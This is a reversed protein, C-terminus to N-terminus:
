LKVNKDLTSAAVFALGLIVPIPGLLLAGLWILGTIPKRCARRIFCGVLFGCLLWFVLFEM